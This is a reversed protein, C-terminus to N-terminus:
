NAMVATFALGGTFAVFWIIFWVDSDMRLTKVLAVLMLMWAIVAPGAFAMNM